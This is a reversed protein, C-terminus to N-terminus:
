ELGNANGVVRSDTLGTALPNQLQIPEERAPVSQQQISLYSAYAETEGSKTVHAILSEARM